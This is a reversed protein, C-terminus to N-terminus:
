PKDHSPPRVEKPEVFIGPANKFMTAKWAIARLASPLTFVSQSVALPKATERKFSGLEALPQVAWRLGEVGLLSKGAQGGM